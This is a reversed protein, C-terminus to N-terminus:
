GLGEWSTRGPLALEIADLRDGYEPSDIDNAWMVIALDCPPEPASNSEGSARLPM